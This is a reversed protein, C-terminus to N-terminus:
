SPNHVLLSPSNTGQLALGVQQSNPRFGFHHAIPPPGQIEQDLFSVRCNKGLSPQFMYLVAGFKSHDINDPQHNPVHIKNEM